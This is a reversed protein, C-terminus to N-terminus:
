TVSHFKAEHSSRKMGTLDFVRKGRTLWDQLRDSSVPHGIVLLDCEEFQEVSVLLRALHPLTHDVFAKNGGILRTVQVFEDHIKLDIGKGALMEGLVVLPSERLDDTGPKFALGWLGVQRAGTALIEEFVREVQAKNSPLVNSLMPTNVDNQRAAYLFARLDKPLCSGGFAFGPRLYKPSLNLKSDSCFIDMVMRSDIGKAHCFIGIENAFTVKVAHFINDCYKAMEAVEYSVRFVPTALGTYLQLLSDATGPMREGVVIKPPDYFDRVSTGERLFEPHFVLEFSKGADTGSSAELLPLVINRTSGPLMTSRVVILVSHSCERIAKGIQQVVTEVYRTSLAGNRESPTGVCVICIDSQRVASVADTTATLRGCDRGQKILEGIEAEVVPSTGNNLAVVKEEAVDVGIIRHGDNSLCGATVVGVYGLGFVAIRM